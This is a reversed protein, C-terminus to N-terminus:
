LTVVKDVHRVRLIDGKENRARVSQIPLLNSIEDRLPEVDEGGESRELAKLNFQVKNKYIVPIKLIM